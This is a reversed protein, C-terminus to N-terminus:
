KILLQKRRCVVNVDDTVVKVEQTQQPGVRAVRFRVCHDQGLREGRRRPPLHLPLELTVQGANAMSCQGRSDSAILVRVGIAKKIAAL